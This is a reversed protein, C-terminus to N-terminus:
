VPRRTAAIFDNFSTSMNDIFLFREKLQGLYYSVNIGPFYPIRNAVDKAIGLLQGKLADIQGDVTFSNNNIVSLLSVEFDEISRAMRSKQDETFKSTGQWREGCFFLVGKLKRFNNQHSSQISNRM